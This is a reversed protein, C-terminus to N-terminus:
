ILMASAEHGAQQGTPLGTSSLQTARVWAAEILGKVVYCGCQM